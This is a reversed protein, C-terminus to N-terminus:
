QMFSFAVLDDDNTLSKTNENESNQDDHQKSSGDLSETVNEEVHFNTSINQYPTGYDGDVEMADKTSNAQQPQTSSIETMTVNSDVNECIDTTLQKSSSEDCTSDNEKSSQEIIVHCQTEIPNFGDIEKHERSASEETQLQISKDQLVDSNTANHQEISNAVERVLDDITQIISDDQSTEDSPNIELNETSLKDDNQFDINDGITNDNMSHENTLQEDNMSHEAALQKDNVATADQTGDINEELNINRHSINNESLNEVSINEKMPINDIQQINQSNAKGQHENNLQNENFAAFVRNETNNNGNKHQVNEDTANLNHEEGQVAEQHENNLQNENFAAFVQNETNKNEDGHQVDKGTDNLILEEGQATDGDLENKHTDNSNHEDGQATDSDLENNDCITRNSSDISAFQVESETQHEVNSESGEFAKDQQRLLDSINDHAKQDSNTMSDRCNENSNGVDFPESREVSSSDCPEINALQNSSSIEVSVNDSASTALLNNVETDQINSTELPVIEPSSPTLPIDAATNDVHNPSDSSPNSFETEVNEIASQFPSDETFINEMHSSSVNPNSIALSVNEQPSEVSEDVHEDVANEEYDRPEIKIRIPPILNSSDVMSARIPNIVVTRSTTVQREATSPVPVSVLDINSHIQTIIPLTNDYSSSSRQVSSEAIEAPQQISYEQSSNYSGDTEREFREQKIKMALLAPIKYLKSQKDRKKSKKKHSQSQGQNQDNTNSTNALEWIEDPKEQKINQALESNFVNDYDPNIIEKKIRLTIPPITSTTPIESSTSPIQENSNVPAIDPAMGATMDTTSDTIQEAEMPEDELPEADAVDDNNPLSRNYLSVDLPELKVSCEMITSHTENTKITVAGKRSKKATSKAAPKTTPKTTPKATSKVASKATAKTTPKATSKAIRNYKPTVKQLNQQSCNDIENPVDDNDSDDFHTDMFSIDDNYESSDDINEDIITEPEMKLHTRTESSPLNRKSREKVPSPGSCQFLHNNYLTVTDFTKTCITCDIVSTVPEKKPKKAASTKPVKADPKRKRYFIDFIQFHNIKGHSNTNLM